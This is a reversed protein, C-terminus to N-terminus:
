KKDKNFISSYFKNWGYTLGFGLGICIGVVIVIICTPALVLREYWSLGDRRAVTTIFYLISVIFYLVTLAGAIM